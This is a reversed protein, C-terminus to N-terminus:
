CWWLCCMKNALSIELPRHRGPFAVSDVSSMTWYLIRCSVLRPGKTAILNEILCDMCNPFAPCHERKPCHVFGLHQLLLLTRENELRDLAKYRFHWTKRIFLLATSWISLLWIDTQMMGLFHTWYYFYLTCQVQQGGTTHTHHRQHRGPHHYGHPRYEECPLVIGGARTVVGLVAYLVGILLRILMGMMNFHLSSWDEWSVLICVHLYHILLSVHFNQRAKETIDRQHQDYILQRDQESLSDFSERGMFLVRVEDLRKGPTVYGTEALLLKFKDRM